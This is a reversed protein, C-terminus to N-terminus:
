DHKTMEKYTGGYLWTCKMSDCGRIAEHLRENEERLRKVEALLKPADAMLQQTPTDDNWDEGVLEVTCPEGLVQVIEKGIANYLCFYDWHWPGETHGEYKDTDIM